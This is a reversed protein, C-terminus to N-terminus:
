VAFTLEITSIQNLELRGYATEYYPVGDILVLTKNQDFGHMSVDPENKRGTTVYIGTVHTLAESVTHSNTAKIDEANVDTSIGIDNVGQMEGRVVIEGLTYVEFDKSGSKEEAWLPGTCILFLFVFLLWIFCKDGRKMKM